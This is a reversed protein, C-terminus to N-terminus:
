CCIIGGIKIKYHFQISRLDDCNEFTKTAKGFEKELIPFFNVVNTIIKGCMIPPNSTITVLETSLAM